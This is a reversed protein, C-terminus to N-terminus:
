MTVQGQARNVAKILWLRASELIEDGQGLGIAVLREVGNEVTGIVHGNFDLYAGLVHVHQGHLASGGMPMVLRTVGAATGGLNPCAFPQHLHDVRLPMGLVGQLEHVACSGIKERVLNEHECGLALNDVKASVRGCEIESVGNVGIHAVPSLFNEDVLNGHGQRGVQALPWVTWTM